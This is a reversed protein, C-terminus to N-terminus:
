MQPSKGRFTETPLLLLYSSKKILIHKAETFILLQTYFTVYEM